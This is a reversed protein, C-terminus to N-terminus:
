SKESHPLVLKEILRVCGYVVAYDLAAVPLLIFWTLNRDNWPIELLLPIQLLFALTITIWFWVHRRLDWRIRVVLLVFTFCVWAGIGTGLGGLFWFILMIPSCCLAILYAAGATLKRPRERQNAEM